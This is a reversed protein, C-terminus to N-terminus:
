AVSSTTSTKVEPKRKIKQNCKLSVALPSFMGRWNGGPIELRRPKIIIIIILIKIIIINIIVM